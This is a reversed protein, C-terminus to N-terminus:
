GNSEAKYKEIIKTVDSVKVYMDIHNVFPYTKPLAEIEAKIKDLISDQEMAKIAMDLAELIEADTKVLECNYCDRNCDDNKSARNVCRKENEIIAIAELKTM